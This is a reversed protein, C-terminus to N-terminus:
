SQRQPRACTKIARMMELAVPDKVQRLLERKLQGSATSRGLGLRRAAAVVEYCWPMSTTRARGPVGQRDVGDPQSFNFHINGDGMHGFPRPSHRRRNPPM